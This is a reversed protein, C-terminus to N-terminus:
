IRCKRFLEHQASSPRDKWVSFTGSNTGISVTETLGNSGAKKIATKVFKKAGGLRYKRHSMCRMFKSVRASCLDVQNLWCIEIRVFVDIVPGFQNGSFLGISVNRLPISELKALLTSRFLIQVCLDVSGSDSLSAPNLRRRFCGRRKRRKILGTSTFM